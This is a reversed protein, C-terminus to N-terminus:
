FPSEYLAELLSYHLFMVYTDHDLRLLPAANFINFDQLSLFETNENGDPVCFADLIRSIVEPFIDCHKSIENASFTFAPLLSFNDPRTSRLQNIMENIRDLQIHGLADFVASAAIISFGRQQELWPGDAAYKIPAFDRYQFNYASDGGYFIPERMAGATSFPDSADGGARGPDFNQRWPSTLSKHLEKLLRETRSMYRVVVALQPLGFDIPKKILLGILTSLETRILRSASHHDLVDQSTFNDGTPIANDRVCFHAIAHVYGPSTCLHALEDFIEQEKRITRDRVPKGRM